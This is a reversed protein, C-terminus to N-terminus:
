SIVLIKFNPMCLKLFFHDQSHPQRPTNLIAGTHAEVIIIEFVHAYTVKKGWWSELRLSCFPFYNELSYINLM